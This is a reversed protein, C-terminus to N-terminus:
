PKKAERLKQLEAPPVDEPRARQSLQLARIYAIIRWRDEVSVQASYDQMAGLGNTIVDFFHGVPANRLRDIHFSPPQRMGRRVIMGTGNGVSDHCPACYINFREQGRRLDGRLVPFPFTTVLQGGVKGTYLHADERLHGRAVTGQIAPRGARGDAFFDSAGQPKLRPQDFMDQRCASALMTAGLAM